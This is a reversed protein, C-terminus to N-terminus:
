PASLWGKGIAYHVLEVRSQFGLKNTYRTKYTEVSKVGINLKLAILKALPTLSPRGVMAGAISFRM